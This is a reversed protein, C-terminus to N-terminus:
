RAEHGAPVVTLTHRPEGDRCFPWLRDAYEVLSSLQRPSLGCSGISARVDARYCGDEDRQLRAEARVQVTHSEDTIQTSAEVAAHHLCSAFAAALLQEPTLGTGEPALPSSLRTSLEGDDTRVRGGEATAVAQHVWSSSSPM